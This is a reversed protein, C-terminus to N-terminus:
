VIGLLHLADFNGPVDRLLRAAIKEAEDLRGQRFLAVAQEFAQALDSPSPRAM